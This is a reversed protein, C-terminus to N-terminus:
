PCFQVLVISHRHLYLSVQALPWRYESVVQIILLGSQSTCGLPIQVIYINKGTNLFWREIFAGIFHGYRPDLFDLPLEKNACSSLAKAQFGGTGYLFLVVLREVAITFM